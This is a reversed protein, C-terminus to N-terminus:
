GPRAPLWWWCATAAARCGAPAFGCRPGSPAARAQPECWRPEHGRRLRAVRVLVRSRATVSLSLRASRACSRRRHKCILRPRLKASRVLRRKGPKAGQNGTAEATGAPGQRAPASSTPGRTPGAGACTATATPRPSTARTPRTSRPRARACASTSAARRSGASRPRTRRTSAAPRVAKDSAGCKEGVNHSYRMGSVCEWDGLNGVWRSGGTAAHEIAAPIEFTNNRVVWGDLTGGGNATNASTSATTTGPATTRTPTASSTTRSRSAGTPPRCRRGGAGTRSSSTWRRATTSSATASPSGPAVIAYVCENHFPPTPSGSMTSADRQRVHLGGALHDRGERRDRQRRARQSGDVRRRRNHFALNKAFAGDVELGDYCAGSAGADCSRADQRGRRGQLDPRRGPRTVTQPRTPAAAGARVVDGCASQGYASASAAAPPPSATARIPGRRPLGPPTAAGAAPPALLLGRVTVLPALALRLAARPPTDLFLM